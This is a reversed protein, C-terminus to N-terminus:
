PRILLPTDNQGAHMPFRAQEEKQPHGRHRTVACLSYAGDGDGAAAVEFATAPAMAWHFASRCLSM